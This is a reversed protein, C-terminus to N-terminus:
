FFQYGAPHLFCRPRRERQSYFGRSYLNALLSSCCGGPPALLRETVCETLLYKEFLIEELNTNGHICLTMMLGRRTWCLTDIRCNLGQVGIFLVHLLPFVELKESAVSLLSPVMHNPTFFVCGHSTPDWGASPFLLISFNM